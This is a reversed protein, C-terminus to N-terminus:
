PKLLSYMSFLEDIMPVFNLSIECVFNAFINAMTHTHKTTDSETVGHVTHLGCLEETWPNGLCPHQLQSVNGEGPSRGSGPLSGM